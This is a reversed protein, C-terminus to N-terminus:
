NGDKKGGTALAFAFGAIVFVAVIMLGLRETPWAAADGAAFAVQVYFLNAM